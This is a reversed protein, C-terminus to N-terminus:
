GESWKHLLAWTNLVALVLAQIVTGFEGILGGLSPPPLHALEFGEIMGLLKERGM